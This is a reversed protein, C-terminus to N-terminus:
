RIEHTNKIIGILAVNSPRGTNQNTYHFNHNRQIYNPTPWTSIRRTYNWCNMYGASLGHRICFKHAQDASKIGEFLDSTGLCGMMTRWNSWGFCPRYGVVRSSYTSVSPVEMDTAATIEAAATAAAVAAAATIISILSPFFPSPIDEITVSTASPSM